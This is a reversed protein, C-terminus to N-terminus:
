QSHRTYKEAQTHRLAVDHFRTSVIVAHENSREGDNENVHAALVRDYRKRECVRKNNHMAYPTCMLSILDFLSIVDGGVYYRTHSAVIRSQRPTVISQTCIVETVKEISWNLMHSMKRAVYRTNDIRFRMCVCICVCLVFM